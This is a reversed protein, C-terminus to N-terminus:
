PYRFLAFSIIFVTCFVTGVVLGSRRQRLYMKFLAM